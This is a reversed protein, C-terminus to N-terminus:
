TLPPPTANVGGMMHVWHKLLGYAGLGLGSSPIKINPSM